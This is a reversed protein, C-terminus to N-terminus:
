SNSGSLRQIATRMRTHESELMNQVAQFNRLIKIMKTVEVVPQVNSGELFGQMVSTEEAANAAADTRYLNNGIPELEQVNDFEVVQLRGIQGNQDSLVGKEDIHLETSTAPITLPGGDSIIPFGSSNVITGDAQRQFNGDRTYAIEGNPQQVAMYGPGSLAVNLPNGTQEMPGSATTQFQGSDYVFSLPDDSYRPDSLYEEFMTNQARFGSTNMNAINNAVTDMSTQLVMQRSLGLYISNEM